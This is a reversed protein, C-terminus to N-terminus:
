SQSVPPVNRGALAGTSSAGHHGVLETADRPVWGDQGDPLEIHLWQPRSELVRFEVGQHIPEEFRPEFANNDGKRVIVDDQVLVGVPSEATILPWAVSLGLAVSAVGTITMTTRLGPVRRWHHITLVSWLVIWAFAFLSLKLASSWTYHWFLLRDVVATGADADVRTRVLSRAHALNEALKADGPMLVEARLYTAIAPGVHGAQVQANGLNYLLPGTTLGDDVIVGFRDIAREFSVNAAGPNHDRQALGQAYAEHGEALVATQQTSTLDGGLAMAPILVVVVFLCTGIHRLMM